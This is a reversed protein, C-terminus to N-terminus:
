LAFGELATVDDATLKPARGYPMGAAIKQLQLEIVFPDGEDLDGLGDIILQRCSGIDDFGGVAFRTLHSPLKTDPAQTAIRDLLRVIM